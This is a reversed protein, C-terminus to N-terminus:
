QLTLALVSAVVSDSRWLELDEITWLTTMETRGM